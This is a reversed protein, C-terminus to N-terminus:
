PKFRQKNKLINVAAIVLGLFVWHFYLNSVSSPSISSVLFSLMAAFLGEIIMKPQDRTLWDPITQLALVHSLRVRSIYGLM